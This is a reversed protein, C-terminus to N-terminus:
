SVPRTSGPRDSYRRRNQRQALLKAAAALALAAAVIGAVVLPSLITKAPATEAALATVPRAGASAAITRSRTATTKTASGWASGSSLAALLARRIDDSASTYSDIDAPVHRLAVRYCRVPYTRDLRGDYRDTLVNKWCPTAATASGAVAFFAACLAVALSLRRTM